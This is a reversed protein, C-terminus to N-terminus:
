MSRAHHGGNPTLKNEYATMLLINLELQDAIRGTLALELSKQKGSMHRMGQQLAINAWRLHAIIEWFHVADHDITLNSNMEYSQFFDERKGIGGAELDTRTFRWCEACFWGIDSMPDSIAAFEWDLIATLGQEDVMFNGTRFDRHALVNKQVRPLNLECWRLGWELGPREISLTDLSNRIKKIEVRAPDDMPAVLFPLNLTGIEISHILALQRGLERTLQARDGGLTLDKVIKPGLGLGSVKGFVAFSCGLVTLDGCYGIPPPVRVGNEYAAKVLLYEEERSRSESITAAADKRLVFEAEKGDVICELLLNEQIAGGSLPSTNVISLSSADLAQKLWSQFPKAAFLQSM